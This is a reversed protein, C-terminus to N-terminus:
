LHKRKIKYLEIFRTLMVNKKARDNLMYQLAKSGNRHYKKKFIWM